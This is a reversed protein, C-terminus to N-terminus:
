EAAGSICYYLEKLGFEAFLPCDECMCGNKTVECETKGRSCYLLENKDQMCDTYSPCGGCICKTNNEATDPIKAM